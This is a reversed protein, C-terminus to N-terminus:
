SELLRFVALLFLIQCFLLAASCAEEAWAEVLPLIRKPVAPVRVTEEKMKARKRKGM